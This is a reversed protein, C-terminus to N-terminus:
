SRVASQYRCGIKLLEELFANVQYKEDSQYMRLNPYDYVASLLSFQRGTLVEALKADHYIRVLVKPDEVLPTKGLPRSIEVLQTYRTNEVLTIKLIGHSGRVSVPADMALASPLWRLLLAYNRGCLALFGNLDPQYRAKVGKSNM